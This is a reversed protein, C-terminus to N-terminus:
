GGLLPSEEDALCFGHKTFYKDFLGHGGSLDVVAIYTDPRILYAANHRLGSRKAKRTCEFTHLPLRRSKCWNSLAETAKGYVHVQWTLANLSEHNDEGGGEQESPVWPLRNGGSVVRSSAESITSARYNLSIQSLKGFAFRAIFPVRLLLPALFPFVVTRLFGSLWSSSTAMTFIEDTTNVLELAFARREPEYTDLLSESSQGRLVTAL